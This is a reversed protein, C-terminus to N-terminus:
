EESSEGGGEGEAPAEGGEAETEAEAAEQEAAAEAKVASPAAITAITFDRDEITPRVGDPLDVHSIHISDNIDFGKLSVELADPLNDARAVMEVEHRVVNLVGGREMGPSEEEGTFHV